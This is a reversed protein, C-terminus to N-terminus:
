TLLIFAVLKGVYYFISGMGQGKSMKYMTNNDGIWRVLKSPGMPSSNVMCPSM